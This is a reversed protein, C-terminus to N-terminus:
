TVLVVFCGVTEVLPPEDGVIEEIEQWSFSILLCVLCLRCITTVDIRMAQHVFFWTVVNVVLVQVVRFSYTLVTSYLTATANNMDCAVDKWPKYCRGESTQSQVGSIRVPFVFVLGNCSGHFRSRCFPLDTGPCPKCLCCTQFIRNFCGIHVFITIFKSTHFDMISSYWPQAELDEPCEQLYMLFFMVLIIITKSLKPMYHHAVVDSVGQFAYFSNRSIHPYVTYDARVNTCLIGKKHCVLCSLLNSRTQCRDRKSSVGHHEMQVFVFQKKGWIRTEICTSHRRNRDQWYDDPVDRASAKRTLLVMMIKVEAAVLNAVRSDPPHIHPLQSTTRSHIPGPQSSPLMM